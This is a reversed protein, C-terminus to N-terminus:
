GMTLKTNTALHRGSLKGVASSTCWPNLTPRENSPPQQKSDGFIRGSQIGTWLSSETARKLISSFQVRMLLNGAEKPAELLQTVRHSQARLPHKCCQQPLHNCQKDRTSMQDECSYLLRAQERGSIIGVACRLGSLSGHKASWAQHGSCAQERPSHHPIALKHSVISGSQSACSCM